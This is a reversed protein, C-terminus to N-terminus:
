CSELVLREMGKGLDGRGEHARHYLDVLRAGFRDLEGEPWKAAMRKFKGHVFPKQGAEEPTAARSALLASKVGWWVIGHIEEPAADALAEILLKWATKKDRGVIADALAFRNVEEAPAATAKAHSAVVKEAADVITKLKPEDVEGEVWVFVNGSARMDEVAALAAQAAAAYELVGNLVVVHAPAFLGGSVLLEAFRGEEWPDSQVRFVLAGPRKKVLADALERAKLLSRGKDSGHFLYIV